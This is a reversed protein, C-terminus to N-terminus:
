GRRDPGSGPAVPRPNTMGERWPLTDPAAVMGTISVYYSDRLDLAHHVVISDGDQLGIPPIIVGGLHGVESPDKSPTLGLDIVTRDNSGPGRDSPRVVRHITVRQRDAGPAFGGSMSLVDMLDGNADLEYYAPRVVAGHLQVRRGRLPVFVVDGQKLIVDGSVEGNLLYPYLDLSVDEGSRRRVRIDRLSALQTPGGAAYLANTVTAVSAMQYAGSQAIEGTVYIQITRLRTLTVSVSMTGREIGSYSNALRDRLLVRAEAMTLNVLDIRGANPVVVFGERTLVLEEASEVDGTLILVIADDPGLVYDEPM